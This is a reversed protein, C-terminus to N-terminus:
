RVLASSRRTPRQEAIDSAAIRMAILSAPMVASVSRPGRVETTTPVVIPSASTM